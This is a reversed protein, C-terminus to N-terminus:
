HGNQHHEYPASKKHIIGMSLIYESLQKSSVIELTNDTRLRKVPWKGQTIFKGIWRIIEQPAEGKTKLPIASVLGSALDQITVVFQCGDVSKKYPGVVDAAIVDGPDQCVDRLPLSVPSRTAKTTACTECCTDLKLKGVAPYDGVAGARVTPFQIGRQVLTYKDGDWEIDGDLQKFKGILIITGAINPCYLVGSVRVVGVVTQLEIDGM